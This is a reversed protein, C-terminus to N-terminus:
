NVDEFLVKRFLRAAIVAILYYHGYIYAHVINDRKRCVCLSLLRAHKVDRTIEESWEVLESKHFSINIANYRRNRALLYFSLLKAPRPLGRGQLDPM